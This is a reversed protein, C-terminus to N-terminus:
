TQKMIKSKLYLLVHVLSIFDLKKNVVDADYDSIYTKLVHHETQCITKCTKFEHIKLICQTTYLSRYNRVPVADFYM